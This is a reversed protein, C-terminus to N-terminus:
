SRTHSLSSQGGTPLPAVWLPYCLLPSLPPPPPHSPLHPSLIPLLMESWSLLEKGDPPLPSPLTTAREKKAQPLLPPPLRDVIVSLRLHVSFLFVKSPRSFGLIEIGLFPAAGQNGNASPFSLLSFGSSSSFFFLFLSFHKAEPSPLSFTRSKHDFFFPPFYRRGDESIGDTSDLRLFPPFRNL